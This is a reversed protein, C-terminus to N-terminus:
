NHAKRDQSLRKSWGKIKDLFRGKKRGHLGNQGRSDAKKDGRAAEEVADPKTISSGHVGNQSVPSRPQGNNKDHEQESMQEIQSTTPETFRSQALPSEPSVGVDHGTTATNSDVKDMNPKMGSDKIAEKRAKGTKMGSDTSGKPEGITLGKDEDRDLAAQYGEELPVGKWNTGEKGLPHTRANTDVTDNKMQGVEVPNDQKSDAAERQEVSEVKKEEGESRDVAGETYKEKTRATNQKQVLTTKTAPDLSSDSSIGAKPAPAADRTRTAEERAAVIGEKVERSVNSQNGRAPAPVSGVQPSSSPGHVGSGVTAQYSFPTSAGNAINMRRETAVLSGPQTKLSANSDAQSNGLTTSAAELTHPKGTKGPKDGSEHQVDHDGRTVAGANNNGRNILVFTGAATPTTESEDIPSATVPEQTTSPGLYSAVGNPIYGRVTSGANQAVRKVDEQSPVYQGAASFYEKATGKIEEFSPGPESTSPSYPYGGPIDLGPTIASPQTKESSEPTSMTPNSWESTPEVRLRPSSLPSNSRKSGITPQFHTPSGNIKHIDTM